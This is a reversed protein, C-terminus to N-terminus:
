IICSMYSDVQFVFMMRLFSMSKQGRHMLGSTQAQQIVFKSLLQWIRQHCGEVDHYKWLLIWGFWALIMSHKAHKASIRMKGPLKIVMEALVKGETCTREAGRLTQLEQSSWHGLSANYNYKCEYIYINFIYHISVCVYLICTYIYINYMYIYMCVCMYIYIYIYYTYLDYIHKSETGCGNWPRWPSRM